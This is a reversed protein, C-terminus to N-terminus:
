AARLPAFEEPGLPAAGLTALAANLQELSIHGPSTLELGIAKGEADFDALLGEGLSETRVSKAGNERPLYLYAALLRGKRFTVELYREKM